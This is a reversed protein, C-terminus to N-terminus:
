KPLIPLVTISPNYIYIEEREIMKKGNPRQLTETRYFTLTDGTTSIKAYKFINYIEQDRFLLYELKIEDNTTSYRDTGGQTQSLTENTLFDYFKYSAIVISSDSFKLTRYDNKKYYDSYGICVYSGTYKIRSNPTFNNKNINYLSNFISQYEQKTIKGKNFSRTAKYYKMYRASCSVAFVAIVLIVTFSLNRNMIEMKDKCELDLYQVQQIPYM